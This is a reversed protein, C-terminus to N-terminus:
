YINNSRCITQSIMIWIIKINYKYQWYNKIKVNNSRYIQCIENIMCKIYLYSLNKSM